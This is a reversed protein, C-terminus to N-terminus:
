RLARLEQIFVEKTEKAVIALAAEKPPWSPLGQERAKIQELLEGLGLADYAAAEIAYLHLHNRIHPPEDRYKERLPLAQPPHKDFAVALHRHLVEHFVVNNIGHGEPWDEGGSSPINRRVNVLLPSSMSPIGCSILAVRLEAGAPPLAALEVAKELIRRGHQDWDKQFEPLRERIEQRVAAFEEESRRQTCERDLLAGYELLVDPTRPGAVPPVACGGCLLALGLVLSSSGRWTPSAAAM